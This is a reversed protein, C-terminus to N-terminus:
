NTASRRLLVTGEVAAGPLFTLKMEREAANNRLRILLGVYAALCVALFGGVALAVHLHPVMGLAVTAVTSVFLVSLVDRRRRLARSHASERRVPVASAVQTQVISMPRGGTTARRHAPTILKPGTRQLVGLHRRFDNISDSKRSEVSRRLFPPALVAIWVLALLLLVV